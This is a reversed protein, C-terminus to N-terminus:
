PSFDARIRAGSRTAISKTGTNDYRHQNDGGVKGNPEGLANGGGQAAAGSGSVNAQQAATLKAQLETIQRQLAEIDSPDTPKSGQPTIGSGKLKNLVFKTM